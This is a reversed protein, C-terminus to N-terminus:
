SSTFESASSELTKISQKRWNEKRLDFVRAKCMVPFQFLSCGLNLVNFAMLDLTLKVEVVLFGTNNNPLKVFRTYNLM